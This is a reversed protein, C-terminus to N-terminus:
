ENEKQHNKKRKPRDKGEEHRRSKKNKERYKETINYNAVNHKSLIV